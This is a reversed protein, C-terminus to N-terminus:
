LRDGCQLILFIEVPRLSMVYTNLHIPFLQILCKHHNWISIFGKNELTKICNKWRQLPWTFKMCFLLVSLDIVNKLHETLWDIWLLFYKRWKLSYITNAIGAIFSHSSNLLLHCKLLLLTRAFCKTTWIGINQCVVQPGFPHYSMSYGGNSAGIFLNVRM